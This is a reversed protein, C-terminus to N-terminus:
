FYNGGSGASEEVDVNSDDSKVRAIIDEIKGNFWNKLEETM